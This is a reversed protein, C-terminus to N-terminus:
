PCLAAPPEEAFMAAMQRKPHWSDLTRRDSKVSISVHDRQLCISKQSHSLTLVFLHSSTDKPLNRVM